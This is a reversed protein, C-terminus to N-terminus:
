RPEATVVERLMAARNSLGFFDFFYSWFAGMELCEEKRMRIPKEGSANGM